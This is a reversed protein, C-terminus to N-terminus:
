KEIDVDDGIKPELQKYVIKGASWKRDVRDIVVKAVFSGKRHIWYNQGEAAGDDRGVSIIVLGIEGAVATVKASSPPRPKPPPQEPRALEEKLARIEEKVRAIERKLDELRTAESGQASPVAVEEVVPAQNGAFLLVLGAVLLAGAAIQAIWESKKMVTRRDLRRLVGERLPRPLRDAAYRSQLADVVETFEEEHNM